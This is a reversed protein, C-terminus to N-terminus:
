KVKNLMIITASGGNKNIIKSMSDPVIQGQITTRHQRTTRNTISYGAHLFGFFIGLIQICPSIFNFQISNFQIGSESYLESLCPENIKVSSSQLLLLLPLAIWVLVLVNVHM